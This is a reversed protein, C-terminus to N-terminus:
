PVRGHADDDLISETAHQSGVPAADVVAAGTRGVANQVAQEFTGGEAVEEATLRITATFAVEIM